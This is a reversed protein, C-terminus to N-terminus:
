EAKPAAEAAPPAPEEIPVPAVQSLIKRLGTKLAVRAAEPQAGPHRLIQMAEAHVMVMERRWVDGDTLRTILECLSYSAEGLETLDFIGAVAVIRNAAAYLDQVRPDDVDRIDRSLFVIEEELTRDVEALSIGRVMELRETAAKVAQTRSMGKTKSLANKLRNDPKIMQAM